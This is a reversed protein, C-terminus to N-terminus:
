TLLPAASKLGTGTILVVSRENPQLVGLRALRWFGALATASTPEIFLGRAAAWAHAHRIEGETSTVTGGGSARLAQLMEKLRPPNRIAAGEAITPQVPRPAPTDLGAMFSADLPSCALPQAAYLRPLTSIEGSRRLEEFAIFSGLLNSGAGAPMVVADPARFGLDEWLEYGISKTGQLFWPHWNHSAYFIQQSQLIAEAQSAERPGPVLQVAAGYARAQAIKAPSTSEPAIIKVALGGAAGYGAISAGGNGSSDELVSAVGIQRLFSLMVAAGRDKFSGTPNLWDLKLLPRHDEWAVEILPTCGEGLSIPSRIPHPLSARYRWVSRDSTVIDTRTIGPLPTIMLPRGADSRWRPEEIPYLSGDVPDIASHPDTM